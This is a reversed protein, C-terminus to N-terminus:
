NSVSTNAQWEIVKLILGPASETGIVANICELCIEESIPSAHAGKNRYKDAVQPLAIRTFQDSTLFSGNPLSLVYSNLEKILLSAGTAPKRLLCYINGLTPPRGGKYLFLAFLSDKKHNNQIVRGNIFSRFGKLLNVLEVELGKVVELCIPAYDLQPASGQIELHRLATSLFHRVKPSFLEWVREGVREIVLAKGQLDITPESGESWNTWEGPDIELKELRTGVLESECAWLLDKAYGAFDVHLTKLTANALAVLNAAYSPRYGQSLHRKALSLLGCQFRRGRLAEREADGSGCFGIASCAAAGDLRSQADHELEYAALYHLASLFGNFEPIPEYPEGTVSDWCSIFFGDLTSAGDTSLENLPKTLFDQVWEDMEADSMPTHIAAERQQDIGFSVDLPLLQISQGGSWFLTDNGSWALPEKIKEFQNDPHVVWNGAVTRLKFCPGEETGRFRGFGSDERHGRPNICWAATGWIEEMEKLRNAVDEIRKPKLSAMVERRTGVSSKGIGMIRNCGDGIHHAHYDLAEEESTFFVFAGDPSNWDGMLPVNAILVALGEASLEYLPDGQEWYRFPCIMGWRSTVRDLIDYREWHLVQAHSMSKVGTRTLSAGLGGYNRVSLITPLDSGAEEVRVMFMFSDSCEQDACQIGALGEGAARRMFMWPDDVTICKPSGQELGEIVERHTEIFELASEESPLVTAMAGLSYGGVGPVLLDGATLAYSNRLREFEKM